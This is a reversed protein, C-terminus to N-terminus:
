SNADSVPARTLVVKTTHELYAVPADDWDAVLTSVLEPRFRKSAVLELVEPISARAHSIGTHLTSSTIFMHMFPIKTSRQFYYGVSTCIGGPALSRIAYTLGSVSASADVSIPYEGVTRPAHKRLWTKRSREPIEIVNGGMEEAIRLRETDSDVYDVREAGLAVAIGVAYLGISRAGGGVVLVPANPRKMLQPAVSRWADPINDSASAVCAPDVGEPLKVLMADAFPVRVFDSVMGGWPGLCEGFGYGSLPTTTQHLCKSTLGIDCHHCSGCSVSWPVVVRDGAAVTEVDEGCQVVEAVCEHGVAFPGQYPRAGLTEQVIPDLYHLGVGVRIANTINHHLFVRDGDCRGAAIPRVIAERGGELRPEAADWWELRNKEIYTLQRM